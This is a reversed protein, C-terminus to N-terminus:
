RPRRRLMRLVQMACEIPDRLIDTEWLRIVTWGATRLERTQRKDRSINYRIKHVWYRANSGAKLRPYRAKWNRGHWFDGDCFV